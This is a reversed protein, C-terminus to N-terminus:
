SFCLCVYLQKLHQAWSPDHYYINVSGKKIGTHCLSLWVLRADEKRISTCMCDEIWVDIQIFCFHCWADCRWHCQGNNKLITKLAKRVYAWMMQWLCLSRHLRYTQSGWTLTFSFWTWTIQIFRYHFTYMEIPQFYPASSHPIELYGGDSGPSGGSYNPHWIRHLAQHKKKKLGKKESYRDQQTHQCSMVTKSFWTLCEFHKEKQTPWCSLFSLLM